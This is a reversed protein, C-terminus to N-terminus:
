SEDRSSKEELKKMADRYTWYTNLLYNTAFTVLTAWLESFVYWLHGYQTLSYLIAADLLFGSTGVCAYKIGRKLHKRIFKKLSSFIQIHSLGKNDWEKSRISFYHRRGSFDELNHSPCKGPACRESNNGKKRYASVRMFRIMFLINVIFCSFFAFLLYDVRIKAVVGLFSTIGVCWLLGGIIAVMIFIQSLLRVTRKSNDKVEDAWLM